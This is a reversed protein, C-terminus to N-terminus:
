DQRQGLPYWTYTFTNFRMDLNFYNDEYEDRCGIPKLKEKM